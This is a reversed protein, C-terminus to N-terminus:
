RFFINSISELIQEHKGARKKTKTRELKMFPVCISDSDFIAVNKILTREKTYEITFGDLKKFSM